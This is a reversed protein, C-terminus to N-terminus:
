KIKPYRFKLCRMVQAAMPVAIMILLILAFRKM